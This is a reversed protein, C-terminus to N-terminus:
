DANNLVLSQWYSISKIIKSNISNCQEEKLTTVTDFTKDGEM